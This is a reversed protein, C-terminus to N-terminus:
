MFCKVPGYFFYDTAMLSPWNVIAPSLYIYEKSICINENQLLTTKNYNKFFTMVREECREIPKPKGYKQHTKGSPFPLTFPAANRKQGQGRGGGAGWYHFIMPRKTKKLNFNYNLAKKMTTM